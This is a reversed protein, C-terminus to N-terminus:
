CQGNEDKMFEVFFLLHNHEWYQLCIHEVSWAAAHWDVYVAYHHYWIHM